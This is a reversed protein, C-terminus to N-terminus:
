KSKEELIINDDFKIFDPMHEKRNNTLQIFNEKDEINLLIEPKMDDDKSLKNRKLFEGLADTQKRTKNLAVELLKNHKM